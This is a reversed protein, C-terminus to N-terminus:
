FSLSTQFCAQPLDQKIQMDVSHTQFHDFRRLLHCKHFEIRTRHLQKVIHDHFHATFILLGEVTCLGFSNRLGFPVDCVNHSVALLSM